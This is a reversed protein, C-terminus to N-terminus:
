DADGAHPYRKLAQVAKKATLQPWVFIIVAFYITFMLVSILGILAFRDTWLDRGTGTDLWMVLMSLLLMLSAPVLYGAALVYDIWTLKSRRLMSGDPMLAMHRCAWYLEAASFHAKHMLWDLADHTAPPMKDRLKLVLPSPQPPPPSYNAVFTVPAHNNIENAVQGTVHGIEPKEM